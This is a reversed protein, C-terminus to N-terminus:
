AKRRAVGVLGLLGSGFLWIAAPVPVAPIGEATVKMSYSTANEASFTWIAETAEFGHGTLVGAGSLNLFTAGTAPGNVLLSSLDLTWGEVVFFGNVASFSDLNATVGGTGVPSGDITGVVNGEPGSSWVTTLAITTNSTDTDDFVYVGGVTLSGNVTAAYSSTAVLSIFCTLLLSLVNKM